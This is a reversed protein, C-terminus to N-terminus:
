DSKVFIKRYLDLTSKAIPGWSYKEANNRSEAAMVELISPEKFVKVLRDALQHDDNSELLSVESNVLDSMGGERTVMLPKGFHLATLGVGSQADFSKYPLVVVDTARFFVHIKETPIFENRVLVADDLKLDAILKVYSDWDHWSKGAIILFINPLNKRAESVAKLLVDLGKYPRINGFFLVIQADQPVGLAARASVKSMGDDPPMLVGHPIVSVRTDSIGDYENLLSLKNAESHVVLHDALKIILKTTIRGMSKNEHPTINHITVVIRQGRIKALMLVTFYAPFLPFSWWQAHVVGGESKMGVSFWSLPNYGHLVLKSRTGSATGDTDDGGPYLFSPYMKSFTIFEVPMIAELGNLLGLCYQSIGKLPPLSGILTVKLSHGRSRGDSGSTLKNM